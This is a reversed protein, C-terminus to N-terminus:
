EKYGEPIHPKIANWIMNAESVNRKWFAEGHRVFDPNHGHYNSIARAIHEIISRGEGPAEPDNVSIVLDGTDLTINDGWGGIM